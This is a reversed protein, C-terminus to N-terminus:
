AIQCLLEIIENIVLVSKANFIFCATNVQEFKVLIVKFMAITVRKCLLYNLSPNELM